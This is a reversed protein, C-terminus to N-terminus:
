ALSLNKDRLEIQYNERIIAHSARLLVGSDVLANRGSCYLNCPQGLQMESITKAVNNCTLAADEIIKNNM